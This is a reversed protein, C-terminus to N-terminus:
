QLIDCRVANVLGVAVAGSTRFMNTMNYYHWIFVVGSVSLLGVAAAPGVGSAALPKAIESEWKPLTYAAQWLTLASLGM